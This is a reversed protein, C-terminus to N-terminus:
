RKKGSKLLETGTFPLPAEFDERVRAAFDVADPHEFAPIWTGVVKGLDTVACSEHRVKSFDRTFHRTTMTKMNSM